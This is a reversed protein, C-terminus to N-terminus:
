FKLKNLNKINNFIKQDFIVRNSLHKLLFKFPNIFIGIEFNPPELLILIPLDIMIRLRKKRQRRKQKRKEGSLSDRKREM